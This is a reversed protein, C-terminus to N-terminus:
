DTQAVEGPVDDGRSIVIEFPARGLPRSGFTFRESRDPPLALMASTPSAATPRVGREIGGSCELSLQVGRSQPDREAIELTVDHLLEPVRIPRAAKSGIRMRGDTGPVLLVIRAAGACELGRELELVASSSAIEEARFRFALNQGLVVHDGDVVVLGTAPVSREGVKSEAKGIPTIRWTPGAHFDNAFSLRAHQREIHALFRLDARSSALHGLTFSTGVTVLFEGADDVAMRFTTHADQAKAPASSSAAQATPIGNVAREAGVRAARESRLQALLGQIAAPTRTSGHGAGTQALVEEAARTLARAAPDAQLLPDALLALTARADGAAFLERARSLLVRRRVFAPLFKMFAHM